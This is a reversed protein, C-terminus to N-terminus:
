LMYITSLTFCTTHLCLVPSSPLIHLGLRLAQPQLDLSMMTVIPDLPYLTARQNADYTQHVRSQPKLACIAHILPDTCLHTYQDERPTTLYQTACPSPLDPLVHDVHLHLLAKPMLDALCHSSAPVHPDWQNHNKYCAIPMDSTNLAIAGFVKIVYLIIICKIHHYHNAM